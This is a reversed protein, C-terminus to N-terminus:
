AILYSGSFNGVNGVAIPAYSSGWTNSTGGGARMLMQSAGQYQCFFTQFAGNYYYGQGVALNGTAAAVPLNWVYSGSGVTAGTGFSLDLSWVCLNGIVTYTGNAYGAGISGTSLFTTWTQIGATSPIYNWTSGDSSIETRRGATADARHVIQPYLSSGLSTLASRETLNRVPLIGGAAVAIPASWVVTPAGGGSAPVNLTALVMSRAPTTPASPSPAPTGALYGVTIGPTSSGDSEAPDNITVYVIDVRAYTADAATVSGTAATDIAYQYPGAIASAELDLVGSHPQVTWTTSTASVTTSPTGIRVGSRAGLPRSSTAGGLLVSMAQRVMPGTYSPAGSVANLLWATNTM